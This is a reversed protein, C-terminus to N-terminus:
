FKWPLGPLSLRCMPGSGAVRKIWCQSRGEWVRERESIPSECWPMAFEERVALFWHLIRSLRGCVQQDKSVPMAVPKWDGTFLVKGSITGGAAVNVNQYGDSQEVAPTVPPASSKQPPSEKKDGGCGLFVILSCLSVIALRNKLYM